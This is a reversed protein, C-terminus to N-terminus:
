LRFDLGVELAGYSLTGYGLRAVFAINDRFFYRLGGYGTGIFGGASVSSPENGTGKWSLSVVDYGLIIGVFPDLKDVDVKFHYNAQGAILINSYAWGLNQSYYWYRLLGGVGINEEIGSEFNAGFQPATGLFSLGLSPGVYTKGKSMYNGTPTAVMRGRVEARQGTVGEKEGARTKERTIKEIETFKFVFVNGDRTEITVSEGPIRELITGRIINGNKLYVVDINGVQQAEAALCLLM